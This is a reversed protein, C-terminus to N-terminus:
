QYSWRAPDLRSVDLRVLEHRSGPALLSALRRRHDGRLRMCGRTGRARRRPAIVREQALTGEGSACARRRSVQPGRPAPRRPSWQALTGSHGRVRRGPRAQSSSAPLRRWSGRRAPLCGTGAAPEDVAHFPNAPASPTPPAVPLLGRRYAALPFNPRDCRQDLHSAPAIVRGPCGPTRVRRPWHEPIVGALSRESAIVSTLARSTQHANTTAPKRLLTPRTRSMRPRLTQM